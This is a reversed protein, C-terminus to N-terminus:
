WVCSQELCKRVVERVTETEDGCVVRSWIQWKVPQKRANFENQQQFVDEEQQFSNKGHCDQM